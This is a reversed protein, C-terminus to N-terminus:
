MVAKKAGAGFYGAVQSMTYEDRAKDIKSRLTRARAENLPQDPFQATWMRSLDTGKLKRGPNTAEFEEIVRMLDQQRTNWIENASPGVPEPRKGAVFEGKPPAAAPMTKPKPAAALMSRLASVPNSGDQPRGPDDQGANGPTMAQDLATRDQAMRPMPDVLGAGDQPMRTMPMAHSPMSGPSGPMISKLKAAFDDISVPPAAQVPAAMAQTFAGKNMNASM